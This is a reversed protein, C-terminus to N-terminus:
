GLYEFSEVGKVGLGTVKFLSGNPAPLGGRAASTVYLDTLDPGGFACATCRIAPMKIERIVKGIRPDVCTVKGGQWMGVWLNGHSDITMGDPYGDEDKYHM